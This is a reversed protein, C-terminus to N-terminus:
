RSKEEAVQWDLLRCVFEAGGDFHTAARVSGGFLEVYSRVV